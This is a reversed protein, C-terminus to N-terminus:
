IVLLFLGTFATLGERPIKTNPPIIGAASLRM